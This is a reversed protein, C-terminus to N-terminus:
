EGLIAAVMAVVDVVNIVGNEDMDAAIVESLERDGLIYDVVAVIDVVNVIDNNDVDGPTIPNTLDVNFMDQTWSFAPDLAEGLLAQLINLDYVNITNDM